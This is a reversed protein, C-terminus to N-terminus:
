FRRRAEVGFIHNRAENLTNNYNNIDNFEYFVDIEVGHINYLKLADMVSFKVRLENVTEVSAKQLGRRQHSFTASMSYERPLNVIATVAMEESDGGIRHGIVSGRRTYGSTYRFHDYWISDLKAFEIKGDFGPMKFVDTFYAGIISALNIPVNGAEDEAGWEAYLKAGTAIPLFRDIRRIFLQADGSIIHNETETGGGAASFVLSASSWFNAFGLRKVGKGGFMMMHNFGFKLFNWPTYDVRWGCLWANPIARSKELRSAFMQANFRGIKRLILPLRFAYINNWKVVDLPFANDTLLLAGHFSPGWWMSTRSSSFEMNFGPHAVRIQAEEIDFDENKSSYRIGPTLSVACFNAVKAWTRLKVRLNFGDRLKWGEKNEFLQQDSDLKSYVKEIILEPSKLIYRKPGDESISVVDVGITVLEERFDDILNYLLTELYEQEAWEFDQEYDASREIAGKIMYAMKIRSVPRFGIDAIDALNLIALKEIADYSWHRLPVDVSPNALCINSILFIFKLILFVFISIRFLNLIKFRLCAHKPNRIESKNLSM